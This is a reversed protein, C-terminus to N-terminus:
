RAHQCAPRFGALCAQRYYERARAPDRYVGIGHEYAVGAHFCDEAGGAECKKRSQAAAGVAAPQHATPNYMSGRLKGCSMADGGACAKQYLAAAEGPDARVGTGYETRYGLTGCSAARAGYSWPHWAATRQRCWGNM